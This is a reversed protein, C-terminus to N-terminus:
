EELNLASDAGLTQVRDLRQYGCGVGDAQRISVGGRTQEIEAVSANV